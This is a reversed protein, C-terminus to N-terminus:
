ILSLQGPYVVDSQVRVGEHALLWRKRPLGSSFGGLRMSAEVVRHCPVIIPIPNMGNAGGVARTARPSGVANAIAAYSRVAGYPISQLAKWVDIQFPTGHLDLAVDDFTVHEGAFYKRLPDAFESPVDADAVTSADNGFWIRVLGNKSWSLTLPEFSPVSLIGSGLIPPQSRLGQTSDEARMNRRNACPAPTPSASTRILAHAGLKRM